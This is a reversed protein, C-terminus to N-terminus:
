FYGSHVLKTSTKITSHGFVLTGARGSVIREM